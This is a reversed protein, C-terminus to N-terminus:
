DESLSLLDSVQEYERLLQKWIDEWRTVDQGDAMAREIQAYGDELRLYLVSARKELRTRDKTTHIPQNIAQATAAM